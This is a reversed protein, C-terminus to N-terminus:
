YAHCNMTEANRLLWFCCFLTLCVEQSWKYFFFFFFFRSPTVCQHGAIPLKEPTKCAQTYPLTNHSSFCHIKPLVNPYFINFSHKSFFPSSFVRRHSMCLIEFRDWKFNFLRPAQGFHYKIMTLSINIPTPLFFSSDM